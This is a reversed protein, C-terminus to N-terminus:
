SFFFSEAKTCGRICLDKRKSSTQSREQQNSDFFKDTIKPILKKQSNCFQYWLEISLEMSKMGYRVKTVRSVKGNRHIQLIYHYWWNSKMKNRGFLIFHTTFVSKHLYTFCSSWFFWSLCVRSLIHHWSLWIQTPSNSFHLFIFYLPMLKLPKTLVLLRTSTRQVVRGNIFKFNV